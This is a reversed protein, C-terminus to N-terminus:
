GEAYISTHTTISEFYFQRVSIKRSLDEVGTLQLM